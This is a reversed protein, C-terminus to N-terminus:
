TINNTINYIVEPVYTTRQFLLVIFLVILIVLLYILWGQKYANDFVKLITESFEGIVKSIDFKGM